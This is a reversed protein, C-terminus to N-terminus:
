ILDPILLGFWWIFFLAILGAAFFLWLHISYPLPRDATERGRLLTVAGWVLFAAGAAPLVFAPIVTAPLGIMLLIPSSAEAAALFSWVSTAFAACLALAALGFPVGPRSSFGAWAPSGLRLARTLGVFSWILMSVAMFALSGALAVGAPASAPTPSAALAAVEQAVHPARLLSTAFAPPRARGTCAADPARDPRDFFARIAPRGCLKDGRAGHGHFPIEVYHAGLEEAVRKSMAAPTIPDWSGATVLTPVASREPMRMPERAKESWNACIDFHRAILTMNDHVLPWRAAAMDYADRSDFPFREYCEVAAYAGHTINNARERFNDVLLAFVEGDRVAVREIV